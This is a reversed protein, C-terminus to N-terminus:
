LAARATQRRGRLAVKIVKTDYMRDQMRDMKKVPDVYLLNRAKKSEFIKDGCILTM